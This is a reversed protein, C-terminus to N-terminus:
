HGTVDFLISGTRYCESYFSIDRFLFLLFSSEATWDLSALLGGLFNRKEIQTGMSKYHM